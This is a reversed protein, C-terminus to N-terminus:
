VQRVLGAAELEALRAGLADEGGALEYRASMRAQLDAIGAPEERLM